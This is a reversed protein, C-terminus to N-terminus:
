IALMIIKTSQELDKKTSINASFLGKHCNKYPIIKVYREQKKEQM